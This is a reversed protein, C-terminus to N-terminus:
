NIILIGSIISLAILEAFQQSAGLVDGTQGSIKENAIYFIIMTTIGVGLLVLISLMGVVLVCSLIGIILAIIFSFKPPAGVSASLGDNRAPKVYVMAGVMPVRSIAGAAVLPWFLQDIKMLESMSGYRGLIILVLAITGFSGIRSDKMIKLISDKDTGGGLGDASDSLGDEHIGGTLTVMTFLAMITCITVPLGFFNLINAILAAIAGVLAGVLPYAWSAKRAREGVNDHDINVPIRTLLSLAILFDSLRLDFINNEFKNM